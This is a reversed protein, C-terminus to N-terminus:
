SKESVNVLILVLDLFVPASRGVPPSIRKTTSPGAM